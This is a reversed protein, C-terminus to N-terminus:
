KDESNTIEARDVCLWYKMQDKPDQWEWILNKQEEEFKSRFTDLDIFMRFLSQENETSFPLAFLPRLYDLLLEVFYLKPIEGNHVCRNCWKISLILYDTNFNTPFAISGEKELKLLFEWFKTHGSYPRLEGKIIKNIQTIGLLNNILIELAQRIFFVSGLHLTHERTRYLACSATYFILAPEPTYDKCLIQRFSRGLKEEAWDVHRYLDFSLEHFFDRRGEPSIFRYQNLFIDITKIGASLHYRCGDQPTDQTLTVIYEILENDPVRELNLESMLDVLYNKFQRIQNEGFTQPKTREYLQILNFHNM